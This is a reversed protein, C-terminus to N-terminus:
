GRKTTSGARRSERACLSNRDRRWPQLHHNKGEIQLRRPTASITPGSVTPYANTPAPIINNKVLMTQLYEMSIPGLGAALVLERPDQGLTKKLYEYARQEANPEGGQNGTPDELRIPQGRAYIYLNPGDAIQSPDCSSWRGLWPAQYRAGHYTFGSESDREKGTYRYRKLSM